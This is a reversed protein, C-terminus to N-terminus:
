IGMDIKKGYVKEALMRLRTPMTADRYHEIMDSKQVAYGIHAWQTDDGALRECQQRKEPSWWTPLLGKRKQALDLFRRFDPLPPDENYIGRPDGAYKYDDEARM